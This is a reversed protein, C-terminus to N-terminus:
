TTEHESFAVQVMVLLVARSQPLQFTLPVLLKYYYCNTHAPHPHYSAGWKKDSTKNDLNISAICKPTPPFYHKVRKNM